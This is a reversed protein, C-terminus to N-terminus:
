VKYVSIKPQGTNPTNDYITALIIQRFVLYVDNYVCPIFQEENFALRTDAVVSVNVFEARSHLIIASHCTLRQKHRIHWHIVLWNFFTLLIANHM